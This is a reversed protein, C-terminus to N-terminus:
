RLGSSRGRNKSLTFSLVQHYNRGMAVDVDGSLLNYVVSWQTRFADNMSIRQLITMTEKRSISGNSEKLAMYATDYRDCLHRIESPARNNIVFNTAVQWPERNRIVLMRGDIYEIVASQGGADALLFHGQESRFINYNELLRVAEEVNKAYDLVMRIAQMGHITIKVPNFVRDGEIAMHGIALGCENMGDHPWFPANLLSVREPLPLTHLNDKRIWTNRVDLLSVSAYRGPPRTFLLLAPVHSVTDQNRGLFRQGAEGLAAFTSCERAADEDKIELFLAPDDKMGDFNGLFPDLNYDGSYDMVYLPHNDIRRLSQLTQRQPASLSEGEEIFPSGAPKGAARNERARLYFSYIAQLYPFTELQLPAGDISWAHWPGSIEGNSWEGSFKKNGNAYWQTWPGHRKGNIFHAMEKQRGNEYYDSWTGNPREQLWEGEAKKTGDAYWKTWKGKPKGMDATREFEKKGSEHWNIFTGHYNWDSFAGQFRPSGNKYWVSWKGHKQGQIYEIEEKKRGNEHWQIWKGNLKGDEFFAEQEKKGLRSWQIAKGHQKGERCQYQFHKQGNEYWGMCKGHEKGNKFVARLKKTGENYRAVATGSFPAKENKVYNIGNRKELQDFPIEQPGCCVAILFVLTLLTSYTLIRIKNMAGSQQKKHLDL